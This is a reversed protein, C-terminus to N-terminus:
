GKKRTSTYQRRLSRKKRVSSTARAAEAVAAPDPQVLAASVQQGLPLKVRLELKEALPCELHFEGFRNTTSEALVREGALLLVMLGQLDKGPASSDLVQGIVSVKESDPQPELRVDIRHSGSGYLLQRPGTAMSRVGVPLPSAFSDFLVDAMTVKVRQGFVTQQGYIAKMARVAGDPAGIDAQRQAVSHVRQWLELAKACKGCGSQLHNQMLSKRDKEVAGRAFDAWEETAFHKM